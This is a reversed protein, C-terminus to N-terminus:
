AVPEVPPDRCEEMEANLAAVQGSLVEFRKRKAVRTAEVEAQATSERLQRYALNASFVTDPVDKNYAICLRKFLEITELSFYKGARLAGGPHMYQVVNTWRNWNIEVTIEAANPSDAIRVRMPFLYEVIKAAQM